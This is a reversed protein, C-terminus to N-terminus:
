AAGDLGYTKEIVSIQELSLIRWPLLFAGSNGLAPVYARIGTKDRRMKLVGAGYFHGVGTPAILVVRDPYMYVATDEKQATASCYLIIAGISYFFLLLFLFLMVFFGFRDIVSWHVPFMDRMFALVSVIAFSAIGYFQIRRKWFGDFALQRVEKKDLRGVFCLLQNESPAKLPEEKEEKSQAVRRTIEEQWRTGRDDLYRIPIAFEGFRCAVLLFKKTVTARFVQQWPLSLTVGEVGMTYRNSNIGCTCSIPGKQFRGGPFYSAWLPGLMAVIVIFELLSPFNGTILAAWSIKGANLLLLIVLTLALTPLTVRRFSRLALAFRDKATLQYSILQPEDDM